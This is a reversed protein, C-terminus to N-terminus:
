WMLITLICGLLKRSIYEVFLVIKFRLMLCCLRVNMYVLLLWWTSNRKKILLLTFYKWECIFIDSWLIDHIGFAVNLDRGQRLHTIVEVLVCIFIVDYFLVNDFAFNLGRGQRLFIVKAWNSNGLSMTLILILMVATIFSNVLSVILIVATILYYRHLYCTRIHM